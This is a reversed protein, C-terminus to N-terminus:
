ATEAERVGESQEEYTLREAVRHTNREPRRSLSLPASIVKESKSKANSNLTFVCNELKETFM